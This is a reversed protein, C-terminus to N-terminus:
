SLAGHWIVPAGSGLPDKSWTILKNASLDHVMEVQGQNTSFGAPGSGTSILVTWRQTNPDYLWDQPAGTGHTQHYLILDTSGWRAIAWTPPSDVVAPVVVPSVPPNHKVWTKTSPTYEWVENLNATNGSNRGGFLLFTKRGPLYKMAPFQVGTPQVGGVVTVETWENVAACGAAIQKATLSSGLAMVFNTHTQPGSDSGYVFLLNDESSYDMAGSVMGTLATGLTTTLPVKSWVNATPDAHLTQLWTSHVPENQVVGGALYLGYPTIAMQGVPHRSRPWSGSDSTAASAANSASNNGGIRTFTKTASNYFYGDDSYITLGTTTGFIWTQGSIPDYVPKHYGNYGPRGVLGSQLAWAISPVARRILIKSM